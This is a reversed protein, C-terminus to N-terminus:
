ESEKKEEDELWSSPLIFQLTRAKQIKDIKDKLSKIEEKFANIAITSNNIAENYKYTLDALDTSLKYVTNILTWNEEKLNRLQDMKSITATPVDEEKINRLIDTTSISITSLDSFEEVSSMFHSLGVMISEIIKFIYFFLPIKEQRELINIDTSKQYKALEFKKLNELIKEILVIESSM